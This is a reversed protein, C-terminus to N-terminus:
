TVKTTHANLFLPTFGAVVEEIGDSDNQRILYEALEINLVEDNRGQKCALRDIVNAM